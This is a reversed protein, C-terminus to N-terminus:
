RQPRQSAGTLLPARTEPTRRLFRGATTRHITRPIQKLYCNDAPPWSQSLLIRLICPCESLWDSSATVVCGALLIVTLGQPWSMHNNLVVLTPFFLRFWSTQLCQHSLAPVFFVITHAIPVPVWGLFTPCPNWCFPLPWLKGDTKIHELVSRSFVFLVQKPVSSRWCLTTDSAPYGQTVAWDAM